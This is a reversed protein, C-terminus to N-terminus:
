PSAEPLMCAAARCIPRITVLRAEAFPLRAQPPSMSAAGLTGPLVMRLALIRCPSVAGNVYIGAGDTAANGDFHSDSLSLDGSDIYLGGGNGSGGAQNSQFTVDTLTPNGGASYMGGGEDATNSSFTVRDLVPSSDGDSWLGGGKLSGSLPGGNGTITIDTLSPSSDLLYIGGGGGNTSNGTIVLNRLTPSGNSIYIGAGQMPGDGMANGNVISFGDLVASSDTEDGTVVHMSNDYYIGLTGIDGDLTTTNTSPDPTDGGGDPFGGIIEVGSRLQFSAFIDNGSTPYYTGAAVHIETCALDGLASQLDQYATTWSSGDHTSGAATDDVFCISGAAQARQVGRLGSSPGLLMALM